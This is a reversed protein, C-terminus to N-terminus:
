EKVLFRGRYKPGINHSYNEINYSQPSAYIIQIDRHRLCTILAGLVQLKTGSISLIINYKNSHRCWIDELVSDVKIPDFFSLEISGEDLLLHRSENILSMNSSQSIERASSNVQAEGQTILILRDPEVNRLTILSREGEHGLLMVLLTEKRTRQKGNFRPISEIKRVGKTLWGKDCESGYGKPSAYIYEIKRGSGRLKLLYDFLCILRDRPFTSIDVLFDKDGGGIKRLEEEIKAITSVPKDKKASVDIIDGSTVKSLFERLKQSKAKYVGKQLYEESSLLISASVKSTFACDCIALCRDEYSAHTILVCNEGSFKVDDDLSEITIDLDKNIM